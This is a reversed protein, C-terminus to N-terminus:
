NNTPASGVLGCPARLCPRCGGEKPVIYSGRFTAREHWLTGGNEILTRVNNWELDRLATAPACGGDRLAPQAVDGGRGRAHAQTWADDNPWPHFVSGLPFCVLCASTSNVPHCVRPIASLRTKMPAPEAVPRNHRVILGHRLYSASQAPVEVLRWPDLYLIWGTPEKLEMDALASMYRRVQAAHEEVNEEGSKFDVVHWGTSTQGGSPSHPRPPGDVGTRM